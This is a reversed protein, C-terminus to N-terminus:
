HSCSKKNMSGSDKKSPTYPRLSDVTYIGQAGTKRKAKRQYPKCIVCLVGGFIFSSQCDICLVSRPSHHHVCLAGGKIWDAKACTEM